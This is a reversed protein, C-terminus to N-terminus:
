LKIEHQQAYAEGQKKIEAEQQNIQENIQVSIDDATKRKDELQDSM